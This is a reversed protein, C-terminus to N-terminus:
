AEEDTLAGLKLDEGAPCALAVWREYQDDWKWPKEYYYQLADLCERAKGVDFECSGILVEGFEVVAPYDNFWKTKATVTMTREKEEDADPTWFGLKRLSSLTGAAFASMTSSRPGDAFYALAARQKSSLNNM